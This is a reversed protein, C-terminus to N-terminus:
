DDDECREELKKMKKQVMKKLEAKQEENLISHIEKRAAGLTVIHAKMKESAETAHNNVLEMYDASEPDLALMDRMKRAKEKHMRKEKIPSLIAEVQSEQEESLDLRDLMREFPHEKGHDRFFHPGAHAVAASSAIVVALSMGLLKKKTISRNKM